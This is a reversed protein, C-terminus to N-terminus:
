TGVVSKAHTLLIKDTISNGGGGGRALTNAKLFIRRFVWNGMM